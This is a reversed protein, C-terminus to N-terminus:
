RRLGGLFRREVARKAWHVPATPALSFEHQESRFVPIGGELTDVVCAVEHQLRQSPPRDDLISDLNAAAVTAQLQAMHALKPSWVPGPFSGIDGAVFVRELGRVACYEDGAVFGGPSRPLESADLWEPGTLGPTFAVLEAPILGLDTHLGGASFGRLPLSWRKLIARRDLEAHMRGAATAGFHALPNAVTSFFTLTFLERERRSRLLTDIGFALELM